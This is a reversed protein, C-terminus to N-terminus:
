GNCICLVHGLDNVDYDLGYVAVPGNQYRRGDASAGVGEYLYSCKGGLAVLAVLSEYILKLCSVM